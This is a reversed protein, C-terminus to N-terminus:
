SKDIVCFLNGDPDALVVFDPDPPYSDWDVRSAGLALLRSVEAAQDTAYLDLHARPKPEPPSASVMLSIAPGAGTRPVLVVFTDDGAPDRRVYGLAATWFALARPMDAVGLVTSGLRLM